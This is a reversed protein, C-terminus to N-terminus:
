LLYTNPMANNRWYIRLVVVSKQRKCYSVSLREGHTSGNRSLKLKLNRMRFNAPHM